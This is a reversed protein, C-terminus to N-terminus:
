PQTVPTEWYANFNNQGSASDNFEGFSEEGIEGSTTLVDFSFLVLEMESEAFFKKMKNVEGDVTLARTM